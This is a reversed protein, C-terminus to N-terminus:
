EEGRFVARFSMWEGALRFEVPRMTQKFQTYGDGPRLGGIDFQRVGRRKMEKIVAWMLFNGANVRRGDPGFWGIHYEACDGFRVVSMGAVPQGNHVMQFVLVNQPAAARIGGLLTPSPGAFKKDSMNAVHRDILWQYSAEDDHINLEAGAKQAQRWRNRFTSGLGSWIAEEDGTLDLRGSRWGNDHRLRFGARTLIATSEPGHPLAPAILLPGQWRRRVATYIAALDDDTMDADLLVPGRNLRALVTVGLVRRVLVTAIALTRGDRQFAVRVIGWGEARKGECYSFSQPLHPVAAQALLDDWAAHDSVPVVAIAARENM